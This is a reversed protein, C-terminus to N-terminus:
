RTASGTMWSRRGTDGSAHNGSPRTSKWFDCGAAKNVIATHAIHGVTRFVAIPTRAIGFSYRFTALTKCSDGTLVNVLTSNGADSGDINVPNRRLKPMAHSTM